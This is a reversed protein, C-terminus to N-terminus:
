AVAELFNPRLRLPVSFNSCTDNECNKKLKLFLNLHKPSKFKVNTQKLFFMKIM